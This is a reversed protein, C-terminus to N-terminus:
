PLSYATFLLSRSQWRSSTMMGPKRNQVEPVAMQLFPVGGYVFIAIAFVPAILESGPFEPMTFSFWEQIMPSFLLVPVTLILSVWFRNRFMTEHGSHDTHAGHGMQHKSHDTTGSRTDQQHGAHDTHTGHASHDVTQEKEPHAAHHNLPQEHKHEM